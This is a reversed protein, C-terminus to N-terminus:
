GRRCARDTEGGPPGHDRRDMPDRQRHRRGRRDFLRRPALGAVAIGCYALGVALNLAVVLQGPSRNKVGLYVLSGLSSAPAGRRWRPRRIRRVSTGLSERAYIVEIPVVLTFLVLALAQGLLLMQVDPQRPAFRLGDHLREADMAAARSLRLIGRPDRALVGAIVLFSVADAELAISLGSQSILLGALAAGGVSAILSGWM